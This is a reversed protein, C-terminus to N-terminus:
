HYHITITTVQDGAHRDVFGLFSSLLKREDEPSAARVKATVAESADRSLALSGKFKKHKWRAAHQSARGVRVYTGRGSKRIAAEKAVLTGYLRARARPVIEVIKMLAGQRAEQPRFTAFYVVLAARLVVRSRHLAPRRAGTLMAATGGWESPKTAPHAPTPVDSKRPKAPNRAHSAGDDQRRRGCARLATRQGSALELDGAGSLNTRDDVAAAEDELVPALNAERADFNRECKGGAFRPRARLSSKRGARGEFRHERTLADLQTLIPRDGVTVATREGHDVDHAVANRPRDRMLHQRSSECANRGVDAIPRAGLLKQRLFPRRAASFKAEPAFRIIDDHRGLAPSMKRGFAATEGHRLPVHQRDALACARDVHIEPPSPRLRQRGRDRLAIRGDEGGGADLRFFEFVAANPHATPDLLTVARTDLEGARLLDLDGLAVSLFEFFAMTSAATLCGLTRPVLRSAGAPAAASASRSAPQLEASSEIPAGGPDSGSTGRCAWCCGCGGTGVERSCWRM